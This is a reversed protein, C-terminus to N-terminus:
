YGDARKVEAGCDLSHGHDDKVEVFRGAESPPGDFVSDICRSM